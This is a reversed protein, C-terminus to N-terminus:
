DSRAALTLAIYRIMATVYAFFLLTVGRDIWLLVLGFHSGSEPGIASLILLPIGLLLILGGISSCVVSFVAVTFYTPPEPPADKRQDM